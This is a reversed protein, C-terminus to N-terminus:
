FALVQHIKPTLARATPTIQCPGQVKLFPQARPVFLGLRFPISPFGTTVNQLKHKNVKPAVTAPLSNHKVYTMASASPYM